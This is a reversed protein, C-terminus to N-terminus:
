RLSEGARYLFATSQKMHERLGEVTAYEDAAHARASHGAGGVAFPVELTREFLYYPAWWPASPWVRPRVGIDDHSAVMARAVASDPSTRAAPCHQMDELMVQPAVANVRERVSAAVAEVDASYPLRIDLAAYAEHPVITKNGEPYGAHIGNISIAPAYLYSDVLSAADVGRRLRRVGLEAAEREPDLVARLEDRYDSDEAHAGTELGDLLPREDDDALARLARVLSWVPSGVVVAASSHLARDVPGGWDGGRCVLRFSLIGKCGLYVEPTGSSDATLDLDFAADAALESRHREVAEPLHPSGLEEEGDVLMTVTVPLDDVSRICRMAELFAALCGKSNAAGRAFVAPGAGDLSRIEASFPPSTWDPEDAPQVDYMAYRLLTPGKGDLSGIVVPNGPTEVLRARGGASEIMEATMAACSAIGEGTGSVSPQMLYSRIRDLSEDFRDDITTWVRELARALQRDGTIAM